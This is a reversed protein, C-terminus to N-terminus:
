SSLARRAHGEGLEVSCGGSADGNGARLREAAAAAAPSAPPLYLGGRDGDRALKLLAIAVRWGRRVQWYGRPLAAAGPWGGRVQGRPLAVAGPM